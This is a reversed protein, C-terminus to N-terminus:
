LRLSDPCHAGATYFHIDTHVYGHRHQLGVQCEGGSPERVGSGGCVGGEPCPPATVGGGGAELM